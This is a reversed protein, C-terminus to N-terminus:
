PADPTLPSLPPIPQEEFNSLKPELSTFFAKRAESMNRYDFRSTISHTTLIAVARHFAASKPGSQLGNTLKKLLTKNMMVKQIAIPAAYLLLSAGALTAGTAGSVVPNGTIQNLAASGLMMLQGGQMLKIAVAGTPVEGMTRIAIAFNLLNDKTNGFLEQLFPDENSSLDKFVKVLKKGDLMGFEDAAENLVSHQLPQLVTKDYQAMTLTGPTAKPRGPVGTGSEKFIKKWALLTDTRAGEKMNKLVITPTEQLTNAVGTILKNQLRDKTAGLYSEAEQFMRLAERDTKLADEMPNVIYDHFKKAPGRQGKKYFANLEQKAAWVQKFPLNGWSQDLDLESIALLKKEFIEKIDGRFDKKGQNIFGRLQELNVGINQGAMRDKVEAYLANRNLKVLDVEGKLMSRVLTGFETANNTKQLQSFFEQIPATLQDLKMKDAKAAMGRSFFAERYAAGIGAFKKESMGLQDLSLSEPTINKRELASDIRQFRKPTSDKLAQQTIKRAEGIDTPLAKAAGRGMIWNKSRTFIPGLWRAGSYDAAATGAAIGLDKMEEWAYDALDAYEKDEFRDELKRAAYEGIGGAGAAVLPNMTALGAVVPPAYRVGAVIADEKTFPESAPQVIGEGAQKLPTLATTFLQTLQENEAGNKTFFKRMKEEDYQPHAKAKEHQAKAKEMNFAM